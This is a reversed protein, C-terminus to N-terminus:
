SLNLAQLATLRKLGQPLQRLSQIGSLDLSNTGTAEAERIRRLAEDNDMEKVLIKGFSREWSTWPFRGIQLGKRM